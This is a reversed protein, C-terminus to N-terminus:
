ELSFEFDEFVESDAELDFAWATWAWWKLGSMRVAAVEIRYAIYLLLRRRIGWWQLIDIEKKIEQTVRM